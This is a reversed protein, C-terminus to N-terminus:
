TELRALASRLLDEPRQTIVEVQAQLGRQVVRGRGVPGGRRAAQELGEAVEARDEGGRHDPQDEFAVQAAVAQVM